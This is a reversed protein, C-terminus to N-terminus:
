VKDSKQDDGMGIAMPIEGKWPPCLLLSLHKEIFECKIM